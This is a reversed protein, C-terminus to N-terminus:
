SREKSEYEIFENCLSSPLRECRPESGWKSCRACCNIPKAFQSILRKNIM